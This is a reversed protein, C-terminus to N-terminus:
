GGERRRLEELAAEAAGAFAVLGSRAFAGTRTEEGDILVRAVLGDNKKTLVIEVRQLEDGYDPSKPPGVPPM